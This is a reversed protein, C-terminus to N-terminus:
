PAPTPHNAPLVLRFAAGGAPLNAATLRGGHAEAISRSIALGLGMGDPKTTHFSDFIRDIQDPPIGHGQDEVSLEVAHGDLRRTRLTITRRALPCDKMADMANLLLNVVLQEIQVRDGVAPPLDPSLDRAITVGRSRAEHGTLRLVDTLLRHLDLPLLTTQHNGVLSRVQKIVESALLDDRRIDALIQRIEALPPHPSDLLMEAAEANSLIAGLPQNVEHAISATLEGLAALRTAHALNQRAAEAERQETIDSVMAIVCPEGGLTIPETSMRIWRRAGSPSRFEQELNRLSLDADLFQRYRHAPDRSAILGLEVPSRGLASERPLDFLREWGPNVDILRGDTRRVISIATPSGRFVGSFREESLRLENEASRRRRRTTLLGAILFTQLALLTSGAVVEGRHEQWLSPQRHLVESGAPLRAAPIEWRELQRADLILRPPTPPLIGITDVPEGSLIRRVVRGLTRGDDEFRTASGGLVGTGLYTAYPGVVPVPSAAAIEAAAEAATMTTGDPSRLYSLYLVAAEPPLTALRQKLEAITLANCPLIELRDAFADCQPIAIRHWDRDFPSDGTVVALKRTAPRLQLLADLTPGVSLDMPLGAIGPARAAPDLNQRDIGGFVIPVGQFLSGRNALLFALAQPGLAVVVHPPLDQYRDGLYRAMMAERAEGPFRISDLFEGFFAVRPQNGAPELAERMGEEYKINAPLLRDNSYVVLVRPQPSDAARSPACLALTISLLARAPLRPRPPIKVAPLNPPHKSKGSGRASPRVETAATTPAPTPVTGATPWPKM